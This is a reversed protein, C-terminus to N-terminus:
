QFIDNLSCRFGTIADSLDPVDNPSAL